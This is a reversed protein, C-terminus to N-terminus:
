FLRRVSPVPKFPKPVYNKEFDLFYILNLEDRKKYNDGLEEVTFKKLTLYKDIYKRVALPTTAYHQFDETVKPSKNSMVVKHPTRDYVFKGLKLDYPPVFVAGFRGTIVWSTSDVSYWPYRIMLDVSTVAFGHFKVKAAGQEDCAYKMCEDLWEMKEKVGRDNAPSIGIYPIEKVMRILWKFNEGQHFVHILKDKPIGAKLMKNYNAYGKEASKELEEVTARTGPSAPIVDLNVVYDISQIYKLCFEIYKDLDISSGKTWASFAGSDLMLSLNNM